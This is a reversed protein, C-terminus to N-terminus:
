AYKRGKNEKSIDDRRSRVRAFFILNILSFSHPEDYRSNRPLYLNHIPATDFM